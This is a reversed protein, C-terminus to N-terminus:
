SIMAACPQLLLSIDGPPRVQKTDLSGSARIPKAMQRKVWNCVKFVRAVVAGSYFCQFIAVFNWSSAKLGLSGAFGPRPKWDLTWSLDVRVVMALGLTRALVGRVLDPHKVQLNTLM